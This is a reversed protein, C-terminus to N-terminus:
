CSCRTLFAEGDLFSCDLQLVNEISVRPDLLISAYCFSGQLALHYALQNREDTIKRVDLACSTILPHWDDICYLLQLENSSDVYAQLHMCSKRPFCVQVQSINKYYKQM